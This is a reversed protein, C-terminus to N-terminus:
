EDITVMQDAIAVGKQQAIQYATFFTMIKTLSAIEACNKFRSGTVVQLSPFEMVIFSEAKLSSM